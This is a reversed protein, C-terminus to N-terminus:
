RSQRPDRLDASLNVSTFEKRRVQLSIICAETIKGIAEDRYRVWGNLTTLDVRKRVDFTFTLRVLALALSYIFEDYIKNQERESLRSERLENSTKIFRVEKTTPMDPPNPLCANIVVTDRSESVSIVTQLVRNALKEPLRLKKIFIAIYTKLYNEISDVTEDYENFFKDLQQNYEDKKQIFDSKEQEWKQYEKKFKKLLADHKKQLRTCKAQWSKLRKSRREVWRALDAEFRM